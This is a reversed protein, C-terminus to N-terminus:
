VNGMLRPSLVMTSAEYTARALNGMLWAAPWLGACLNTKSMCGTSYHTGFM